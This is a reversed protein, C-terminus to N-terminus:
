GPPPLNTLWRAIHDLVGDYVQEQSVPSRKAVKFSHDGGPIVHLEARSPLASLIPCLEEPTGFADRSGQVFLIPAVIDPLHQSRLQDPRGPPHLPYGLLVLSAIGDPSAAAVQSAIRGGMSKGGIALKRREPDPYFTGARAAGIIARYCAELAANRDPLRKGHEMYVFNFTIADIGRAALGTAFQVMFLSAQDAGAGHALILAGASGDGVGARYVRATVAQAPTVEVRLQVPNRSEEHAM